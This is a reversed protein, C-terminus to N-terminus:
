NTQRLGEINMPASQGNHCEACQFQSIDGLNLPHVFTRDGKHCAACQFTNRDGLNVPHQFIGGAAAATKGAATQDLTAHCVACDNRIVRGDTAFHQGDHCRFCGQANYHGINNPHAQWDTKMEPFFYTRYIRQVETVAGTISGGMSGALDPYATRYYDNIITEIGQMAEDNTSYPKALAEVAKAKLFPLNTDLKGADFSQDGAQNPSLYNHAPRNHCDICNMTRKESKEVDSSAFGATKFEVIKGTGDKM